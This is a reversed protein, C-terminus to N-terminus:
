FVENQSAFDQVQFEVHYDYEKINVLDLEENNAHVVTSDIVSSKLIRLVRAVSYTYNNLETQFKDKMFSSHVELNYSEVELKFISFLTKEVVNYVLVIKNKDKVENLAEVIDVINM